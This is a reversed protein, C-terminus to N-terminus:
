SGISVRLAAQIAKAMAAVGVPNPHFSASSFGSLATVGFVWAQPGACVGHGISSTGSADWAGTVPAWGLQGGTRGIQGNLTGQALSLSVPGKTSAYSYTAGPNPVLITDRAWAFDGQTLTLYTCPAGNSNRTLDPYMVPLVKAGPNLRLGSTRRGDALVCATGGLCAAIRAYAAPLKGTEAQIGDQVNKYASLPPFAARALPCDVNLVCSGLLSGFGVDNGGVQLIVADAARDGLIAAAQEAQSTAQGAASQPGLVGANVTAGSCALDIFEVSTKPSSKELALAAQAPAGLVSRHCADNDWYPRFPVNGQLWAQVNRPNGEGSSYSDGLAVIILGRPTANITTTATAAGSRVELTLVTPANALNLEATCSKKSLRQWPTASVQTGGQSATWHYQQGISKCADLHVPFGSDPLYWSTTGGILRENPQAVRNGAGVYTGSPQASLAGTSPVGGDGDIVGDRNTDKTLPVMSWSGVAKISAAGAPPAAVAGAVALASGVLISTPLSFLRPTKVV